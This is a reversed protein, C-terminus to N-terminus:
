GADSNLNRTHEVLQKGRIEISRNGQRIYVKGDVYAYDRSRKVDVKCIDKGEVSHFTIKHLLHILGNDIKTVVLDALYLQFGDRNCKQANAVPYEQEVGIISGDDAVGILLHGGDSNMFAAITKLVNAIMSEEKKKTHPNFCLGQKFEVTESEGAEILDEIPTRNSKPYSYEQIAPMGDMVWEFATMKDFTANALVDEITEVTNSEDYIWSDEDEDYYKNEQDVGHPSLWLHAFLLSEGDFGNVLAAVVIERQQEVLSGIFEPLLSQEADSDYIEEEPMFSSGLLQGLRFPSLFLKESDLAEAWSFYDINAMEEFAFQCFEHYLTGITLFRILVIHKDLENKYSTLGELDLKSWADEAWKLEPGNEWINFIESASKQIDHWEIKM